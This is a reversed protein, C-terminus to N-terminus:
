EKFLHLSTSFRLWKSRECWYCWVLRRMGIWEKKEIMGECPKREAKEEERREREDDNEKRECLNM